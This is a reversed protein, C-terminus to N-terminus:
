KHADSQPDFDLKSPSLRPLPLRYRNKDSEKCYGEYIGHFDKFGYSIAETRRQKLELDEQWNIENWKRIIKPLIFRLPFFLWHGHMVYRNRILCKDSKGNEDSAEGEFHIDLTSRLGFPLYDIVRCHSSSVNFMCHFGNLFINIFPLKYKTLIVVSEQSEALIKAGGFQGHVFELHEHDWTNWWAVYPSCDTIRLLETEFIKM